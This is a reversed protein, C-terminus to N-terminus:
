QRKWAVKLPNLLGGVAALFRFQGTTPPHTPAPQRASSIACLRGRPLLDDGFRVSPHRRSARGGVTRPVVELRPAPSLHKSLCFGCVRVVHVRNAVTARRPSSSPYGNLTPQKLPAPRPSPLLFSYGDSPSTLTQAHHPVDEKGLNSKQGSSQIVM